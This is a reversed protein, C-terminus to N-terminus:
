GAELRYGVGRVASVSLASGLKSRLRALHVDITKESVYVTGWAAELLQRRSLVVGPRRLLATLLDLERRTLEVARGGVTCSRTGTDVQLPGSALVEDEQRDPGSGVMDAPRRLRARIRAVVEPVSFPKVVYDDAGLELGAVRNAEEGRATLVIVPITSEHRLLRILEFGDLEPMMVDVLALDPKEKRVTALATRGDAAELVEYGAQALYRRLVFRQAAEDDVVLVRGRDAMVLDERM